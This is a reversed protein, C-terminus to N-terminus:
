LALVSVGAGRVAKVHIGLIDGVTHGKCGFGAVLVDDKEAIFNLCGDDSIFATLKKRKKVLQDRFCKRIASNVQKAEVSVEELLIRKAQSIGGFPSVKLATGLHTIMGRRTRVPWDKHSCLKRAMHPGQCKGMGSTGCVPAFSRCFM